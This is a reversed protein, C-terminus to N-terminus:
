RTAAARVIRLQVQPPAFLLMTAITPRLSQGFNPVLKWSAARQQERRAKEEVRYLDTPNGVRKQAAIPLKNWHLVVRMDVHLNRM